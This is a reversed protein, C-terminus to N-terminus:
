LANQMLLRVEDKVQDPLEIGRLTLSRTWAPVEEPRMTAYVEAFLAAEEDTYADAARGKFGDLEEDDFYEIPKVAAAMMKDAMCQTACVACNGTACSEDAVPGEGGKGRTFLTGVAVIIALAIIAFILYFM